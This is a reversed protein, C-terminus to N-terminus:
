IAQAIPQQQEKEIECNYLESLSTAADKIDEEDVILYRQTTTISRHSLMKSITKLKKGARHLMTAGTKRLDMITFRAVGSKALASEWEKRYNTFDLIKDGKAQNIIDVIAPTFPHRFKEGSSQSTKSRVGSIICTDYNVNKSISLARLDKASLLTNVAMVCINRLRPTACAIFRKLEEPSVIRERVYQLEDAKKVASGPNLPPLKVPKPMRKEKPWNQMASFVATFVTHLRNITSEKINPNEAKLNARLTETDERTFTDLYRSPFMAKLQNLYLRQRYATAVKSAHKEWFIECATELTIRDATEAIDFKNQRISNKIEQCKTIADELPQLDETGNIRQIRGFEKRYVEKNDHFIRVHVYGFKDVSVGRPLIRNRYKRAMQTEGLPSKNSVSGELRWGFM